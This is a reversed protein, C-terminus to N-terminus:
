EKEENDNLYNIAEQLRLVDDKLCGIGRNCLGCLLGRVRNTNHDHDIHLKDYHENCIKCCGSQETYMENYTDLTIGYKRMYTNNRKAEKSQKTKYKLYSESAQEKKQKCKKCKNDRGYKSRKAKQFLELDATNYAKLFCSRCMRLIPRDM